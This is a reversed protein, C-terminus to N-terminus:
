AAVAVIKKNLFEPAGFWVHFASQDVYFDTYSARTKSKIFGARKLVRLHHTLSTPPIKTKFSIDEFCLTGHTHLALFIRVRRAHALANFATATQVEAKTKHTPM